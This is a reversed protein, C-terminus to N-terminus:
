AYSLSLLRVNEVTLSREIRGKALERLEELGYCDTLRFIAHPSCPKIGNWDRQGALNKFQKLFWKKPSPFELSEDNELKDLAEQRAVLYDSPLATFPVVSTYLYALM